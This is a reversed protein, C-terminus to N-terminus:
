WCTVRATSPSSGCSILTLVRAQAPALTWGEFGRPFGESAQEQGRCAPQDPHFSSKTPPTSSQPQGKELM